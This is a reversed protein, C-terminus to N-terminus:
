IKYDQCSSLWLTVPHPHHFPVELSSWPPPCKKSHPTRLRHSLALMDLYEHTPRDIHNVVYNSNHVVLPSGRTTNM